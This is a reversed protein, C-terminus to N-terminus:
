YLPDLKGCCMQETRKMFLSPTKIRGRFCFIISLHLRSCFGSGQKLQPYDYVICCNKIIIKNFFALMELIPSDQSLIIQKNRPHFGRVITVTNESTGLTLLGTECVQNKVSKVDFRVKTLIGTQTGSPPKIIIEQYFPSQSIIKELKQCRLPSKRKKVSTQKQKEKM